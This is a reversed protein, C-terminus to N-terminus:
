RDKSPQTSMAVREVGAAMLRDWVKVLDSVVVAGDARVYVDKNTASLLAQRVREPLVDVQGKQVVHRPELDGVIEFPHGVRM